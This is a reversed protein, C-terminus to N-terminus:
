EIGSVTQRHSFGQLKEAEAGGGRMVIASHRSLYVAPFGAPQGINAGDGCHCLHRDGGDGSSDIARWQNAFAEALADPACDLLQIVKGIGVSSRQNGAATAEEADDNLVDGIGEEGIQDLAEFLDGDGAAVLNEDAGRVVTRLHEGSTRAAHKLAFDIADGHHGESFFFRREVLEYVAPNGNNQGLEFEVVGVYAGDKEVIGGANVLGDAMEGLEAM